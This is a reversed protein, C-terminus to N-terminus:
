RGHMLWWAELALTSRSSQVSLTSKLESISQIEENRAQRGSSTVFVYIWMIRHIICDNVTGVIGFVGHLPVFAADTDARM